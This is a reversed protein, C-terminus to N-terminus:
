MALETCGIIISDLKGQEFGPEGWGGHRIM